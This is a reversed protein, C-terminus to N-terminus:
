CATVDVRRKWESNNGLPSYATIHIGQRKCYEVMDDQPLLPHAEIQNVAPPEGTAKIIAELHRITFNSVGIAKVKGTKRLAIMAKWTDVLSTNTDIEVEGPKDGRVPITERGSVFAVPWHILYLDLYPSDLQSLTIDLQKEVEVPHHANNWLKSTIFLEERRVVSPVVKKLAVGVQM